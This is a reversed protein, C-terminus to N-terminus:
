ETEHAMWDEMQKGLKPDVEKLHEFTLEYRSVEVKTIFLEDYLSDCRNQLSDVTQAKTIDGGQISTLNVQKARSEDIAKAYKILLVVFSVTAVIGYIKFIKM